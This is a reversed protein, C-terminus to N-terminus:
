DIIFILLIKAFSLNIEKERFWEGFIEMLGGLARLGGL